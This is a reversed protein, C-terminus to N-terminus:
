LFHAIEANGIVLLQLSVMVASDVSEVQVDLLLSYRIYLVFELIM